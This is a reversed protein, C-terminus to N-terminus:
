RLNQADPSRVAAHHRGTILLYSQLCLSFAQSGLESVIAGTIGWMPTLTVALALQVCPTLLSNLYLERTRAHANLVTGIIKKPFFLFSVAILQTYFVADVYKPFLIEFVYPALLIYGIFL